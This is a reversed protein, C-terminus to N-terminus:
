FIASQRITDVVSEICETKSDPLLGHGLNFIFGRKEKMEELIKLTQIRAEEPSTKMVDPNLNGQVCRNPGVEKKVESLSQNWDVSIVKASSTVFYKWYEGRFFLITPHNEGLTDVIRQIYKGSLEWYLETPILPSLSDFIQAADIGHEWQMLLYECISDTLLTMFGDFGVPDNKYWDLIRLKSLTRVHGGETMFCALTWPAGTFGLLAAKESLNSKVIDLANGVYSLRGTVNEWQLQSSFCTPNLKFDMIIGKDTFRYAQGLAEPIVLIDSFIIAADFGFRSIPQLTIDASLEPTRVLEVFSFRERLKRYESMVRGAQRMFWVPPRDVKGLNLTTLFRERGDMVAVWELLFIGSYFCFLSSVKGQFANVSNLKGISGVRKSRTEVKRPM